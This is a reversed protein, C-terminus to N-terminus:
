LNLYNRPFDNTDWIFRSYEKTILNGLFYIAFSSIIGSIEINSPGFSPGIFNPIRTFQNYNENLSEYKKSYFSFSLKTNIYGCIILNTLNKKSISNGIGMPEDASIIVLDYAPSLCVLEEESLFSDIANVIVDDYKDEIIDKLVTVKKHGIDKKTWLIQRNLNSKEIIDGDIITLDKIGAGALLVSTLSGIGGCGVILVKAKKVSEILKIFDDCTKIFSLFYSSTRSFFPDKLLGYSELIISENSGFIIINSNCLEEFAKIQDSSIDIRTIYKGVLISENENNSSEVLSPRILGIAIDENYIVGNNITVNEFNLNSLISNKYM